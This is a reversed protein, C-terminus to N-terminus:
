NFKQKTYAKEWVDVSGKAMPIGILFSGIVYGFFWMLFTGMSGGTLRNQFTCWGPSCKNSLRQFLTGHTQTNLGMSIVCWEINCQSRIVFSCPSCTSQGTSTNSALAQMLTTRPCGSR